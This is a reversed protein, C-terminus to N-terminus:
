KQAPAQQAPRPEAPEPTAVADKPPVGTRIFEDYNAKLVAETEADAKRSDYAVGMTDAMKQYNARRKANNVNAQKLRAVWDRRIDQDTRGEDWSDFYVIRTDPPVPRVLFRNLAWLSVLTLTIALALSTWKHPKPERMYDWLDVVPNKKPFMPAMLDDPDSKRRPMLGFM